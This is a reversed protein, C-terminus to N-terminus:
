LVGPGIAGTGVNPDGWDIAWGGSSTSGQIGSGGSGEVLGPGQVPFGGPKPLMAITIAIKCRQPVFIQNFHSYTVGLSTCWGYFVMHEGCFLWIPINKMPSVTPTDTWNGPMSEISSDATADYMGFLSYWAAVDAFVGFYQARTSKNKKAKPDSFMEYTRDYLLEMSLSGNTIPNDAQAPDDSAYGQTPDPASPDMSHSVNLSSPNLLFNVRHSGGSERMAWGRKMQGAQNLPSGIQRIRPDFKPNLSDMDGRDGKTTHSFASLSSAGNHANKPKSIHQHHTPATGPERLVPM